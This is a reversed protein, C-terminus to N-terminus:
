VPMLLRGSWLIWLMSAFGIANMGYGFLKMEQLTYERNKYIFLVDLLLWLMFAALTGALVYDQFWFSLICVEVILLVIMFFKSNRRGLLVASTTKGAAKDPGIDMIEGALHAQFCFFILYVITQWPLMALDNLVISFIGTLIYGTQILLELPPRTKLRLPEFNYIYNVVLISSLLPLMWWGSLYTFLVLFLLLLITSNSVAKQLTRKSEKAGFLFNGKRDNEKDAAIDGFDNLSYVFYNLPFSVFILGLWFLPREWFNISSAFPLLYIWLTPFWLGPRSIKLHVLLKNL